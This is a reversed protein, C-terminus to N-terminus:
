QYGVGDMEGAFVTMATMRPSRWWPTLSHWREGSPSIRAPYTVGGYPHARLCESLLGKLIALRDKEKRERYAIAKCVTTEIYRKSNRHSKAKRSNQELLAFLVSEVREEHRLHHTAMFALAADAESRSRYGAAVYDGALIDDVLKQYQSKRLFGLIERAMQDDEFTTLITGESTAPTNSVLASLFLWDDPVQAWKWIERGEEVQYWRGEVVSHPVVVGKGPGIIEIGAAIEASRTASVGEPMPLPIRWGGPTRYRFGDIPLGLSELRELSGNKREDVDVYIRDHEAAVGANADPEDFWWDRVTEYDKTARHWGGSPRPSKGNVELRAVPFGSRVFALASCRFTFTSERVPERALNRCHASAHLVPKSKYQSHEYRVGNEPHQDKVRWADLASWLAGSPNAAWTPTRNRHSRMTPTM